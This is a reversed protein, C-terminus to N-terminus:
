MAGHHIPHSVSLASESNKVLDKRSVPTALIISTPGTLWLRVRTYSPPTVVVVGPSGDPLQDGYAPQAMITSAIRHSSTLPLRLRRGHSCRQTALIRTIPLLSRVALREPACLAKIRMPM